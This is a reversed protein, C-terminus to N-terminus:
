KKALFLEKKEELMLGAQDADIPKYGKAELSALLELWQAHNWKGDHKKVFNILLSTKALKKLNTEQKTAM